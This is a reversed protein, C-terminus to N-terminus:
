SPSSPGIGLRGYSFINKLLIYCVKPFIDLPFTFFIFSMRGCFCRCQSRHPYLNNRQPLPAERLFRNIPVTFIQRCKQRCKSSMKANQDEFHRRNQRCFSPTFVVGFSALVRTFYPFLSHLRWVRKTTKVYDKKASISLDLRFAECKKM